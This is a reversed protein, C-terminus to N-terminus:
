SPAVVKLKGGLRRHYYRFESCCRRLEHRVGSGRESPTLTGSNRPAVVISDMTMTCTSLVAVGNISLVGTAEKGCLLESEWSPLNISNSHRGSSIGSCLRSCIRPLSYLVTPAHRFGAARSSHPVWFYASSFLTQTGTLKIAANSSM